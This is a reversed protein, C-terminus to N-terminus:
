SNLVNVLLWKDSIEFFSLPPFNHGESKCCFLSRGSGWSWGVAQPMNSSTRDSLPLLPIARPISRQSASLLPATQEAPNGRFLIHFLSAWFAPLSWPQAHIHGGPTTMGPSSYVLYRNKDKRQHSKSPRTSLSDGPQFSVPPTILSFPVSHSAFCSKLFM